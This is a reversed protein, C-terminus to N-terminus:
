NTVNACSGYSKYGKIKCGPRGTKRDQMDWIFTGNAAPAGIKVSYVQQTVCRNNKVVWRYKTATINKQIAWRMMRAQHKKPVKASYATKVETTTTNTVDNTKTHTYNYEAKIPGYEASIKFNHTNTTIVRVSNTAKKGKSVTVRMGGTGWDSRANTARWTESVLSTKIFPNECAPRANAPSFAATPGLAVVSSAALVGVAAGLTHIKM